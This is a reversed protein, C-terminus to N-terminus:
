MACRKTCLNAFLNICMGLSQIREYLVDNGLEFFSKREQKEHESSTGEQRIPKLLIDPVYNRECIKLSILKIILLWSLSQYM